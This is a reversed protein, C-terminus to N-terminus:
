RRNRRLCSTAPALLFSLMLVTTWSALASPTSAVRLFGGFGALCAIAGSWRAWPGLPTNLWSQNRAGLYLLCAGASSLLAGTLWFLSGWKSIGLM